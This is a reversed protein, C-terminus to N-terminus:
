ARVRLPTSDLGELTVSDGFSPKAKDIEHAFFASQGL